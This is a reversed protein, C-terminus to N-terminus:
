PSLGPDRLPPVGDAGDGVHRPHGPHRDGRDGAGKPTQVSDGGLGALADQADGLVQVVDGGRRGRREGGPAGADHGDHRREEGAPEEGREHAGDLLAQPCALVVHDEEVELVVAVVLAQGQRLVHQPLPDVADDGEVDRHRRLLDLEDVAEAEILTLARGTGPNASFTGSGAAYRDGDIGAAGLTAADLMRMAEGAAGAVAIVELRGAGPAGRTPVPLTAPELLDDADVHWPTRHTTM